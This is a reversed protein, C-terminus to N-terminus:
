CKGTGKLSRLYAKQADSIRFSEIAKQITKRHVWEPLRRQEIYPLAAAYQKALAEAFFWAMMMQVYYEDRRIDAVWRLYEPRFADDLYFKLLMGVGFRTTYLHESRLWRQIHPLLEQRYKRFVKPILLDCTAWNDVYPLFADLAAVAQNFNKMENILLGHLNNEDYYGHPLAALFASVDKDGSRAFEKAFKRLVPLRVGLVTEPSVTPILRRHFRAYEEDALAALAQAIEQM